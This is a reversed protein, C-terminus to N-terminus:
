QKKELQKVKNLWSAHERMCAFPQKESVRHVMQLVRMGLKREGERFATDYPNPNYSERLVGSEELLLGVIIRAERHKLLETILRREEEIRENSMNM